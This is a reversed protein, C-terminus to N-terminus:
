KSIGKLRDVCRPCFDEASRLYSSSRSEFLDVLSKWGTTPDPTEAGCGDCKFITRQEIRSM